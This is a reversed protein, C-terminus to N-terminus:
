LSTYQQVFKLKLITLPLLKCFFTIVLINCAKLLCILPNTSKCQFKDPMHKSGLKSIIKKRFKSSYIRRSGELVGMEPFDFKSWILFRQNAGAYM